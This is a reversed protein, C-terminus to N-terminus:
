SAKFIGNILKQAEEQSMFYPMGRKKGEYELCRLIIEKLESDFRTTKKLGDYLRVLKKNDDTYDRIRAFLRCMTSNYTVAYQQDDRFSKTKTLWDLGEIILYESSTRDM